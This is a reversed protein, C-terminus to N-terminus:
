HGRVLSDLRTAQWPELKIGLHQQVWWVSLAEGPDRTTLQWTMGLTTAVASWHALRGDITGTLMRNFQTPTLGSRRAIEAQSVGSAEVLRRVEKRQPEWPDDTSM